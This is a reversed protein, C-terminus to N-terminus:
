NPCPGSKKNAVGPLLDMPMRSVPTNTFDLSLDATSNYDRSLFHLTLHISYTLQIIKKNSYEFCNYHRHWASQCVVTCMKQSRWRQFTPRGRRDLACPCRLKCPKYRPKWIANVHERHAILTNGVIGVQPDLQYQMTPSTMNNRLAAPDSLTTQWRSSNHRCQSVLHVVARWKDDDTHKFPWWWHQGCSM